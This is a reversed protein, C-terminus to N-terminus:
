PTFSDTNGRPTLPNLFRTQYANLKEPTALSSGETIKSLWEGPQEVRTNFFPKQTDLKALENNLSVTNNHMQLMMGQSHLANLLSKNPSIGQNRDLLVNYASLRTTLRHTSEGPENLGLFKEQFSLRIKASKHFADEESRDFEATWLSFDLPKVEVTGKLKSALVSGIERISFSYDSPTHSANYEDMKCIASFLLSIAGDAMHIDEPIGQQKLSEMRARLTDSLCHKLMDVKNKASLMGGNLATNIVFIAPDDTSTTRWDLSSFDWMGKVLKECEAREFAVDLETAKQKKVPIM